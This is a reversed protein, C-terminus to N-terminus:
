RAGDGVVESVLLASSLRFGRRRRGVTQRTSARSPVSPAMGTPSTSSAKWGNYRHLLLTHLTHLPIDTYRYHTYRIYRYRTYRIYRYIVTVYTVVIHVIGELRTGRAAAPVLGGSVFANVRIGGEFM